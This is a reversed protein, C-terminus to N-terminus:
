TQTSMALCADGIECCSKFIPLCPMIYNMSGRILLPLCPMIFRSIGGHDNKHYALMLMSYTFSLLDIYSICFLEMLSFPSLLCASLNGQMLLKKQCLLASGHYFSKKRLLHAQPLIFVQIRLDEGFSINPEVNHRSLDCTDNTCAVCM